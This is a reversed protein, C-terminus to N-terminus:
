GRKRLHALLWPHYYPPPFHTFTISDAFPALLHVVEDHGWQRLHEPDPIADDHPCSLAFLGGPRLSAMADAVVREPEELHELVECMFVADFEHGLSRLETRVDLLVYEIPLDRDRARNRELVYESFDVGTVSVGPRRLALKRCLLGFGCGVDLVSSDEPVLEVIADHIPGYDRIGGDIGGRSWEARYVDDWYASTNWNV